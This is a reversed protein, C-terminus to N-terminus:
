VNGRTVNGNSFRASFYQKSKGNHTEGTQRANRNEDYEAQLSNSKDGPFGDMRLFPLLNFQLALSHMVM